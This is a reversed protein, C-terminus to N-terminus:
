SHRSQYDLDPLTQLFAPIYNALKAYEIAILVTMSISTRLAASIHELTDLPESSTSPPITMSNMARITAHVEPNSKIINDALDLLEPTFKSGVFHHETEPPAIPNNRDVPSCPVKRRYNIIYNIWNNDDICDYREQRTLM